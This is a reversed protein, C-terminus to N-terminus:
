IIVDVLSDIISWRTLFIGLFPIFFISSTVSNETSMQLVSLKLKEIETWFLSQIQLFLSFYQFAPVCIFCKM